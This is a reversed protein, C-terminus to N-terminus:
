NSKGGNQLGTFLYTFAAATGPAGVSTSLEPTAMQFVHVVGAEVEEGPLTLPLQFSLTM